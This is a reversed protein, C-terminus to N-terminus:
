HTDLYNVNTAMGNQFEFIIRFDGSIDLSWYGRYPNGKLRHLRLGPANLDNINEANNLMFLIKKIKQLRKAPLKSTKGSTFLEQLGKHRFSEIM